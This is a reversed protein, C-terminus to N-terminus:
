GPSSERPYARRMGPEGEDTLTNVAPERRRLAGALGRVPARRGHARRWPRSGALASGYSQLSAAPRAGADDAGRALFARVADHM